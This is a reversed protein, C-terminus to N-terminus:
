GDIEEEKNIDLEITALKVPQTFTVRVSGELYTKETNIFTVYEKYFDRDNIKKKLFNIASTLDRRIQGKVTKYQEKTITHPEKWYLDKLEEYLYQYVENNNPLRTVQSLTVDDDTKFTINKQQNSPLTMILSDGIINRLTNMSEEYRM